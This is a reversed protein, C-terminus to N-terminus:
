QLYILGNLHLSLLSLSLSLPLCLSLSDSLCLSFSLSLSLYMFVSLCVFLFFSLSFFHVELMEEDRISDLKDVFFLCPDTRSVTNTNTECLCASAPTTEYLAPGSIRYAFSDPRNGVTQMIYFQM